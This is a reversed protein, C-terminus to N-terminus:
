AFRPSWSHADASTPQVFNGLCARATPRGDPFSDIIGLRYSRGGFCACYVNHRINLYHYLKSKSRNQGRPPTASPKHAECIIFVQTRMVHIFMLSSDSVAERRAISSGIFRAVTMIWISHFPSTSCNWVTSHRHPADGPIPGSKIKAVTGRDIGLERAIRRNSSGRAHFILITAQLSVNLHNIAGPAARRRM